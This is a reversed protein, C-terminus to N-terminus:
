LRALYTVFWVQVWVLLDTYATHHKIYIYVGACSSLQSYKSIKKILM